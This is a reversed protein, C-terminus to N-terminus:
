KKYTFILLTNSLFIITILMKTLFRRDINNRTYPVNHKSDVGNKPPILAHKNSPVKIVHM